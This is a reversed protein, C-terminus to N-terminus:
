KEGKRRVWFITKSDCNVGLNGLNTEHLFSTNM